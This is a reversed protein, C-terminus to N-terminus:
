ITSRSMTVVVDRRPVNTASYYWKNSQIEASIDCRGSAAESGPRYLNICQDLLIAKVSWGTAETIVRLWSRQARFDM